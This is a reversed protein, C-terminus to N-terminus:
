VRPRQRDRPAHCRTYGDAHAGLSIWLWDEGTSEMEDM